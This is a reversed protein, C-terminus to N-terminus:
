GTVCVADSYVPTGDVDAFIMEVGGPIARQLLCWAAPIPLGLAGTFDRPMRQTTFRCDLRGYFHDRWQPDRGGAALDWGAFDFPVWGRDDFWVEAWFHNTPAIRYLLNGGVLRAPIGRARCLAIFLASGMQCDFWGADLVWDGPAVADVQDYHITGGMLEDHIYDWFVRVANGVTSDSGALSLALARIRDSVVILGERPRLYLAKEEATMECDFAQEQPRAAFALKAGVVAEEDGAPTMRLELRGPGVTLQAGRGAVCFPAVQLNQLHPGKLPLPARLRLKRGFAVARLNFNRKFEVEFPRADEAPVGSPASAALDQVLRRLTPALRDALFGDRGEVAALKMFNHVEVPDFLRGGDPPSRFKLGLKVWTELAEEAGERAASSGQEYAWGLLTVMEVLRTEPICRYRDDAKM